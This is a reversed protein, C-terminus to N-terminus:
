KLFRCHRIALSPGIRRKYQRRDGDQSLPILVPRSRDHGSGPSLAPQVDFKLKQHHGRSDSNTDPVAGCDVNLGQACLASAPMEAPPCHECASMEAHDPGHEGHASHMEIASPQPQSGTAMACPQASASGWAVIFLGLVIRGLFTRHAQNIAM